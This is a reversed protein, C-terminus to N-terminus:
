SSVTEGAPLLPKHRNFAHKVLRSVLEDFPIGCHKAQDPYLSLPTMGPMTNTELIVFTGDKRAIFDSRSLDRCGLAKHADVATQKIKENLDTPIRAPMIHFSKGETYKHEFDYKADNAITVEITELATAKEIDLVGCTIEMGEIREEVILQDDIEYAKKLAAEMTPFEQSFTVGFSSGQASPKLVVDKGVEKEIKQAQESVSAEGKTVVCDKALPLGIAKFIQKSIPKNMGCSSALVGSGVYAIGAIDLAGQITGDEGPPGHLVPFVVDIENNRLDAIIDATLEFLKVFTFNKELAKAVEGGSIRSVGAERAVGGVLVGVRLQKLDNV